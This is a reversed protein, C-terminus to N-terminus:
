ARSSIKQGGGRKEIKTTTFYLYIAHSPIFPLVTSLSMHQKLFVRSRLFKKILGAEPHIASKFIRSIYLLPLVQVTNQEFKVATYRVIHLKSCISETRYFLLFNNEYCAFFVCLMGPWVPYSVYTYNIPSCFQLNHVRIFFSLYILIHQNEDLDDHSFSSSLYLLKEWYDM